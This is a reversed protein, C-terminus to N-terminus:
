GSVDPVAAYLSRRWAPRQDASSLIAPQVNFAPDARTVNSRYVQALDGAAGAAQSTTGPQLIRLPIPENRYNVTFTGVDAASLAEPCPPLIILRSQPCKVAPLLLVTGDPVAPNIPVEDRAPPNIPINNATYALQYDQFEMM